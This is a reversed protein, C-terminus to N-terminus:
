FYSKETSNAGTNEVLYYNGIKRHMGNHWEDRVQKEFKKFQSLSLNSITHYLNEYTPTKGNFRRRLCRSDLSTIGNDVCRHQIRKSSHQDCMYDLIEESKEYKPAKWRGRDFEGGRICYGRNPDGNGGLGGEKSWTHHSATVKWAHKHHM